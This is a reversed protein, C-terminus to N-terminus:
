IYCEIFIYDLIMNLSLVMGIYLIMTTNTFISHVNKTSQSPVSFIGRPVIIVYIFSDKQSNEFYISILIPDNNPVHLTSILFLKEVKAHLINRKKFGELYSVLSHSDM